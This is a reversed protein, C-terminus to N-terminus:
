KQSRKKLTRAFAANARILDVILNKGPTYTARVRIKMEKDIVESRKLVADSIAYKKYDPGAMMYALVNMKCVQGLNFVNMVADEPGKESVTVAGHGSCIVAKGKGLARAMARGTENTSLMYPYPYVGYSNILDAGEVGFAKLELGFCGVLQIWDNGNVHCVAVVDPRAEYVCAHLEIEGMTAVEPDGSVKKRTPIDIQVITQLTVESM